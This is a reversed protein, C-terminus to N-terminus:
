KILMKAQTIDAMDSCTVAYMCENLGLGLTHMSLRRRPDQSRQRREGAETRGHDVVARDSYLM